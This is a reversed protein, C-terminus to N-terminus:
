QTIGKAIAEVQEVQHAAPAIKDQLPDVAIAALTQNANKNVDLKDVGPMALVEKVTASQGTLAVLVSNITANLLGAISVISKAVPAGFIDTLQATSVVLVSLVAGLILMVQKANLNM